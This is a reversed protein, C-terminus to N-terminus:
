YILSCKCRSAGSCKRLVYSARSAMCSPSPSLRCTEPGSQALFSIHDESLIERESQSAPKCFRCYEEDGRISDYGGTWPRNDLLFPEQQFFRAACVQYHRELAFPNRDSTRVKNVELAPANSNQNKEKM